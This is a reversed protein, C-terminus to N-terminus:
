LNTTKSTETIAVVDYRGHNRTSRKHGSGVPFLDIVKPKGPGLVQFQVETRYLRGGDTVRQHSRIANWEDLTM